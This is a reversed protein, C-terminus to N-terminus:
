KKKKEDDKVDTIPTHEPDDKKPDVKDAGTVHDKLTEMTDGKSLPKGAAKEDVKDAGTVQDKMKELPDRKDEMPAKRQEPPFCHGCLDADRKQAGKFAKVDMVQNIDTDGPCHCGSRTELAGSEHRIGRHAKGAPTLIVVDSPEDHHSM